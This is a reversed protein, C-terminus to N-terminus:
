ALSMSVSPHKLQEILFDSLMGHKIQYVTRSTQYAIAKLRTWVLLACAIHNRQIRAKRCQCAEVGTLQKLERHFEEIKWRTGCADQVTDTSAQSLDNTVVFDTRNTSVIVRFLKVKKDQPFGRLKVLKGQQLEEECWVLEDVRAYPMSGGSDDVRRNTKLPCYYRKELQDIQAMLKQTAYWSDMLVTSFPLQKSYVVGKLMESVHELKSHGDGDPDYLRYDIVWFQGTEGNVYVCSVLGIGRIVRHENGSYQRRTLEISTSHRKDLVTDDFLLYANSCSRLLPKVNEWLLRPTLREGRLYRNIRDHSVGELHEALNTVTYNIPSSLLYQCYDLKTFSM